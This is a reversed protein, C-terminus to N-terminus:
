LIEKEEANEDEFDNVSYVGLKKADEDNTEEKSVTDPPNVPENETIEITETPSEDSVQSSSVGEETNIPQTNETGEDENESTITVDFTEIEESENVEDERQEM